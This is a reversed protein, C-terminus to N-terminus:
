GCIIKFLHNTGDGCNHKVGAGDADALDDRIQKMRDACMQTAEVCPIRHLDIMNSDHPEDVAEKFINEAM